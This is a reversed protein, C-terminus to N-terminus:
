TENLWRLQANSFEAGHKQTPLLEPRKNELRFSQKGALPKIEAAEAEVRAV